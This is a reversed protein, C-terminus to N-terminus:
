PRRKAPAADPELALEVPKLVESQPGHSAARIAAFARTVASSRFRRLDRFRVGDIM